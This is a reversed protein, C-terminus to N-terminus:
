VIDRKTVKRQKEIMDSKMRSWYLEDADNKIQLDRYKKELDRLSKTLGDKESNSQKLQLKLTSLEGDILQQRCENKVKTLEDEVTSKNPEQLCFM